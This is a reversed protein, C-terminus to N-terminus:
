RPIPAVVDGQQGLLYAMDRVHMRFRGNDGWGSGWSNDLTLVGDDLTAGPEFERCLYEHGGQVSGSISVFGRADPEDMGSLWVTGIIVPGLQLASLLGTVSFAHRYGAILGRAKLVKAIALGSSGTDMPPYHGPVDDRRTADSYLKVAYAEDFVAGTSASVCFPETGLLGTGANGTCSGLQGQDLIRTYRPHAVALYAHEAGHDFTPFDRSRPDHEVFRGLLKEARPQGHIFSILSGHDYATTM